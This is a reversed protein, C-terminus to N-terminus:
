FTVVLVVFRYSRPRTPQAHSGGSLIDIITPVKTSSDPGFHRLTYRYNTKVHVNLALVAFVSDYKRVM